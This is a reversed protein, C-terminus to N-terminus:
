QSANHTAKHALAEAIAEHVELLHVGWSDPVESPHSIHWPGTDQEAAWAISTSQNAGSCMIMVAGSTGAVVKVSSGECAQRCTVSQLRCNCPVLSSSTGTGGSIFVASTHPRNM